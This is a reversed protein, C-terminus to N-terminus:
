MLLCSPVPLGSGGKWKQRETLVVFLLEIRELVNLATDVLPVGVADGMEMVGACGADSSM